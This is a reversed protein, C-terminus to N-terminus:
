QLYGLARLREIEEASFNPTAGEQRETDIRASWARLTKALRDATRPDKRALNRREGPDAELDFLRFRGTQRNAILKWQGLVVSQLWRRRAMTESFVPEAELRRLTDPRALPLARGEFRGNRPAPLGLVDLLSPVVDVLAVPAAVRTGASASRSGAGAGPLKILLPVHILEGFLTKGHGIWRDQRDLFAEGHDATFVIVADDYLDLDRLHQLLRGIHLDTFRIESDYLARIHEVDRESLTRERAREVLTGYREGSAVDGRYEPDFDFGEHLMYSFHPDFYHLFLFFPQDSSDDDLLAIAKDTVSESSVHLPGLANDEDLSSLGQDFGLRSGAYTHSIVAHTDYGHEALIEALFLADDGARAPDKSDGYGLTAPYRSTLLSAVSPSTWPAQAFANDFTVSEAALRDLNPSTPRLYGAFGLHDTRLTDVVVFVVDPPTEGAPRRALVPWLYILLTAALHAAGLVIIPTLAPHGIRERWRPRWAALALSLIALVVGAALAWPMAPDIADRLIGASLRWLGHTPYRHALAERVGPWVSAHVGAILALSASALLIRATSRSAPRHRSGPSKM